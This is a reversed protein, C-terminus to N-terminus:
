KKKKQGGNKKGRKKKGAKKKKPQDAEPLAFSADREEKSLPVSRTLPVTYTSGYDEWSLLRWSGDAHVFAISDDRVAVSSCYNAVEPPHTATPAGITAELQYTHLNVLEISNDCKQIALINGRFDFSANYELMMQVVKEIPKEHKKKEKEAEYREAAQQLTEGEVQEVVEAKTPIGYKFLFLGTTSGAVVRKGHEVLKLLAVPEGSWMITEPNFPLVIYRAELLKGGEPAILEPPFHDPDASAIKAHMEATPPFLALAPSKIEFSPELHLRLLTGEVFGILLSEQETENLCVFGGTPIQASSLIASSMPISSSYLYVRRFTTGEAHKRAITMATLTNKGPMYGLLLIHKKTLSSSVTKFMTVGTKPNRLYFAEGFVKGSPMFVTRIQDHDVILVENEFTSMHCPVQVPTGLNQWTGVTIGPLLNLGCLTGRIREDTQRDYRTLESEEVVDKDEEKDDKKVKITTVTKITEKAPAYTPNLTPEVGITAYEELLDYLETKQDHFPMYITGIVVLPRELKQKKETERLEREALAEELEYEDMEDDDEEEEEEKGKAEESSSPVPAEETAAAAAAAEAAKKKKEAKEQRLLEDRKKTALVIWESVTKMRLENKDASYKEMAKHLKVILVVCEESRTAKKLKGMLVNEMSVFSHVEAEKEIRGYKDITDDNHPVTTAVAYNSSVARLQFRDGGALEAEEPSQRYKNYMICQHGGFFSTELKNRRVFWSKALETKTDSPYIDDFCQLNTSHYQEDSLNGLETELLFNM